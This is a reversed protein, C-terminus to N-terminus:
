QSERSKELLEIEEGSPGRFIATYWGKEDLCYPGWIPEIDMFRLKEIWHQLNNVEWCYHITTNHAKPIEILELLIDEKKMWLLKEQEFIFTDIVEFGFIEQYFQKAAEIDETKIGTHHWKM